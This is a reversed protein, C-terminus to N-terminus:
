SVTGSTNAIGHWTSSFVHTLNFDLREGFGNCLHEEVKIKSENFCGTNNMREKYYAYPVKYTGGSSNFRFLSIDQWIGAIVPVSSAKLDTQNNCFEECDEFSILGNECIQTTKFSLTSICYCDALSVYVSSYNRGYFTYNVDLPQKETVNVEKM